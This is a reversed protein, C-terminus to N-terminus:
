SRACTRGQAEAESRLSEGYVDCFGRGDARVLASRARRPAPRQLDRSVPLRRSGAGRCRPRQVASTDARRQSFRRRGHGARAVRLLSAMEKITLGEPFTIPACSSTAAPSSAHSKRRRRRRRHLSIGAKLERETGTLYVALRFTWEDRVVGADVLAKGIARSVRHRARDRRVARHRHLGSLARRRARLLRRGRRRCPPSAVVVLILRRM